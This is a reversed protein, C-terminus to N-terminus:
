GKALVVVKVRARSAGVYELKPNAAWSSAGIDVLIVVAAELGKVAAVNFMHEAYRSKEAALTQLLQSNAVKFPTLLLIDAPTFGDNELETLTSELLPWQDEPKHWRQVSVANDSTPLHDGPEAAASHREKLWCAIEYANRYNRHLRFPYPVMGDFVDAPLQYDRAYLNQEPDALLTVSADEKLMEHLPLWWDPVYDQAEDVVLADWNEPSQQLAEILLDPATENYFRGRERPDEPVLWDLGAAEARHQCLEHFTAVEITELQSDVMSARHSEALAINFCLLLVNQGERALQEARMRALVSKGTGAGGYIAMRPIHELLRLVWRQEESLRFLAAEVDRAQEAVSSTLACAPRLLHHQIITAQQKSLPLANLATKGAWATNEFRAILQEATLQALDGKLLLHERNLTLEPFIGQWERTDPLVLVPAIPLKTGPLVRNIAQVLSGTQKKLQELPTTALKHTGHNGESWWQGEGDLWVGGGKVEWLQIGYQPHFLLFDVEGVWTGKDNRTQTALGHMVELGPFELERLARYIRAEARSPLADLEADSLRPYIAAM